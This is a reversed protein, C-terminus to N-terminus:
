TVISSREHIQEKLPLVPAASPTDEYQLIIGISQVKIHTHVAATRTSPEVSHTGRRNGSQIESDHKLFAKTNKKFKNCYSTLPTCGSTANQQLATDASHEEFIYQLM